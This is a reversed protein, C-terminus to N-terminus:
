SLWRLVAKMMDRPPTRSTSNCPQGKLVGTKKKNLVAGLATETTKHRAWTKVMFCHGHVNTETPPVSGTNEGQPCGQQATVTRSVRPLLVIALPARQDRTGRASKAAAFMVVDAWFTAKTAWSDGGSGHSHVHIVTMAEEATVVELAMAKGLLLDVM